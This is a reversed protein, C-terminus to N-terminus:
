AEVIPEFGGYIMRKGDFPMPNTASAFLPENMMKEMAANSTAADPWVIWSLVVVEDDKRMVATNMSNTEGDPVDAGWAEMVHLAGEAKLWDAALRAYRIYDERRGQPVPSLCGQIYTM